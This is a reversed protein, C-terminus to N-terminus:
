LDEDRQRSPQVQYGFPVKGNVINKWHAIVEPHALPISKINEAAKEQLWKWTEESIVMFKDESQPYLMDKYNILRMPEDEYSMWHKIFEWMICGAQFGTIGGQKSKNAAWAAAIASAAVAHCITGYDHEYGDLIKKMFNPLEKVTVDKAEKYWRDQLKDEERIKQIM